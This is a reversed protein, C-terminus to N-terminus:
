RLWVYLRQTYVRGNMGSHTYSDSHASMSYNPTCDDEGRLPKPHVDLWLAPRANSCGASIDQPGEPRTPGKDRGNSAQYSPENNDGLIFIFRDYFDQIWKERM